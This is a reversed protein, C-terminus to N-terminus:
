SKMQRHSLDTASGKYSFSYQRDMCVVSVLGYFTLKAKLVLFSELKLEQFSVCLFFILIIGYWFVESLM